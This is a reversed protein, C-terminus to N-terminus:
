NLEGRAKMEMPLLSNYIFTNVPTEVDNEKGLRVVAGVIFDLESPRGNMIDRQMSTTLNEPRTDILKMNNEILNDPLTVGVRDSVNIIEQMSRELMKRTEPLSRIVGFPSRTITAVGHLATGFVMKIWIAPLVNAHAVNDIGVYDLLDKLDNVRTSLIGDIEGFEIRPGSVMNRIHGPGVKMSIIMALGGIVNKRDHVEMLISHAEVGNQLPLIITEDSVLPKIAESIERLQPTKVGIIVLDAFGIEQPNDTVKVPNIVFDGDPSDIRLGERKMVELTESRAIFTVNLGQQALKGGFYGGVGGVGVIVIKKNEWM